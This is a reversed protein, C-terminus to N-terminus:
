TSLLYVTNYRRSKSYRCVHTLVKFFNLVHGMRYTLCMRYFGLPSKATLIVTWSLTVAIMQVAFITMGSKFKLCRHISREFNLHYEFVIYMCIGTSFPSSLSVHCQSNRRFYFFSRELNYWHSTFSHNGNNQCCLYCMSVFQNSKAGILDFQWFIEFQTWFNFKCFFWLITFKFKKTGFIFSNTTVKICQNRNSNSNERWFHDFNLM